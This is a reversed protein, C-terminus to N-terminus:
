ITTVAAATATVTPVALANLKVPADVAASRSSVVLPPRVDGV